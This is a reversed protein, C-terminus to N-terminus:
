DDGRTLSLIDATSLRKDTASGALLEVARGGRSLRRGKKQRSKVLKAADGHVIFEVETGPFIGLKERVHQPITVQGKTTVRMTIGNVTIGDVTLYSM